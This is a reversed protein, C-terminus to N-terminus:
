NKEKLYHLRDEVISMARLVLIEESVEEKLVESQPIHEMLGWNVTFEILEQKYEPYQKIWRKLEKHNPKHETAVYENLVDELPRKVQRISM